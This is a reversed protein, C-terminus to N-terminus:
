KPEAAATRDNISWELRLLEARKRMMARETATRRASMLRMILLTMEDLAWCAAIACWVLALTTLDLAWDLCVDWAGGAYWIAHIPRVLAAFLFFAAAVLRGREQDATLVALLVLPLLWVLSALALGPAWAVVIGCLFVPARRVWLWSTAVSGSSSGM